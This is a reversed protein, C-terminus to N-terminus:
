RLDCTEAAAADFRVVVIRRNVSDSVYLKGDAEAFDCETPWAFAIEPEPVKSKPGASDANGYAGIRAIRNGAPDLMEVSSHFASPAYVRGYPDADLQSQLCECGDDGTFGDFSHPIIGIGSYRWKAGSVKVDWGLYGSKYAVADAPAKALALNDDLAGGKPTYNGYIQGGEPGFKFVSGMHFLYPNAYLWGWPAPRTGRRYYKWPEAPVAKAFDAPIIEDAPKLNMGLYVNGRNDVGIGSDGSGCGNVLAAKKLTGDPSYVDVTSVIAHNPSRRVYLDGNPAICHGRLGMVPGYARFKIELKNSGTAPFALPKGQADVRLLANSDYGGMLYINGDKDLTLDNGPLKFAARKGTEFDITSHGGGVESVIVRKRQPDAVMFTPFHLGGPEGAPAGIKLAAGEDTIPTLASQTGYGASIVAWLRPPSASADLALLEAYQKKVQFEVRAVEKSGGDKFPTFKIIRSTIPDASKMVDYVRDAKKSLVYIEGTGPHVAIQEPLPARFHGLLKGEASYIKVRDNGRDCVYLNGEKDLALGQPDNFDEDGAGPETKGIWPAGLEKDTWKLRHVGHRREAGVGRGGGEFLGSGKMDHVLYIWQGDPSAALRDSGRAYAEGAGGLFGRAKRILPGVFGVKEPAGGEPHFAILHRPPGHNCMSGISSAAVLYGDPHWAMTQGRLGAVLPYLCHGQGNFVLPQRRGDIKLHGVPETRAEPTNAPYPMITRLYKGGSDLVRLESRGRFADALLVFIEGKPSVTIAEVGGSLTNDNRGLIKDLRPELGLRVRAKFPGGAAPKGADDKGDWVVEQALADKKFPEPANKGLVGAALHRVVKGDAALVAVEVDTPAAAAFSIRVKDGDRAAAPKASFVVEGGAALAGCLSLGLVFAVIRM